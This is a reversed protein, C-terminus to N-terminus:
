AQDKRINRRMNRHFENTARKHFFPYILKDRLISDSKFYSSHIIETKGEPTQKFVLCQKGKSKNGEIYSFEITRNEEDLDIIEFALALNYVGRLFRLNLYIVQGTDVEVNQDGRYVVMESPKSCLLGFSLRKGDWLKAPSSHIYGEWVVDIDEDILYRIDQCSYEAPVKKTELTPHLDYISLIQNDVQDHIYNRVKRYPIKEFNLDCLLVQGFLSYNLFLILSLAIIKM